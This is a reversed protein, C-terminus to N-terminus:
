VLIFGLVVSLVVLGAGVIRLRVPHHHEAPIGSGAADFPRVQMPFEPLMLNPPPTGENRTFGIILLVVGLFFVGIVLVVQIFDM